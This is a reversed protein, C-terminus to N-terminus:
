ASEETVLVGRWPTVVVTPAALAHVDDRSLGDPFPLHTDSFPLPASPGATAPRPRGTPVLPQVAGGRAM